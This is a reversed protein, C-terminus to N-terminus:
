LRNPSSFAHIFQVLSLPYCIRLDRTLSSGELASAVKVRLVLICLNGFVMKVRDHKYENILEQRASVPSHGHALTEAM